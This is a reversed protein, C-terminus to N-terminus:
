KIEDTDGEEKRKNYWELFEGFMKEEAQKRVKIADEKKDYRGLFYRVEKFRIQAIWKCREKDWHVGKYGSTNDVRPINKTIVSINTGEIIDKDLYVKYMKPANAKIKEARICGCSTAKSLVDARLWIKTNCDCKCYYWTRNDERKRQLVTLRGIKQGTLDIAKGM